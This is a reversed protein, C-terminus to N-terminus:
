GKHDPNRVSIADRPKLIVLEPAKTVLLWVPLVILCMPAIVATDGTLAAGIFIAIWGDRTAALVIGMVACAVALSIPLDPIVATAFLGLATGVFVVPFIRGGRFGASAAVLMAVIKIGAFAALQGTAYAGPDKLLEGTEELGKFLTIPGGLIGLLGLVMGGLTTFVIPNGLAHFARHLVPFLWAAAIGLLAAGAAVVLGTLLYIPQLAGMPELTFALKQGGLLDTTLAGAGAAAVPLFLRDWLSGGSKMAGVMGTFVLAAAVPTGFLAGITGAVALAAIQQPPVQKAMRGILTMALVANIAIIPNEPGLSVGGALSLTVVIVLSPLAKLEPFPGSLETTASDPGAHGPMLWVVAGVALGTFTLVTFIWWPTAESAGFAGPLTDWLFSELLEALSSVAWLCVASGVGILIAPISLLVLQRVSPGTAEADTM